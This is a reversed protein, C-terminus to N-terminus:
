KNIKNPNHKRNQPTKLLDWTSIHSELLIYLMDVHLHHSQCVVQSRKQQVQDSFLGWFMPEFFPSRNKGRLHQFHDTTPGEAAGFHSWAVGQQATNPMPGEGRDVLRNSRRMRLDSIQDISHNQSVNNCCGFM